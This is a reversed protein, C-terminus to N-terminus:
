NNSFYIKLDDIGSFEILHLGDFPKLDKCGVLYLELGHVKQLEHVVADPQKNNDLDQRCDTIAILRKMCMSDKFTPERLLVQSKDLFGNVDTLDTKLKETRKAQPLDFVEKQIRKLFREVLEINARKMSDIVALQEDRISPKENPDIAPATRFREIVPPRDSPNGIALVSITFDIGREIRDLIIARFYATDPKDYETTTGSIDIGWSQVERKFSINENPKNCGAVAFILLIAVFWKFHLYQNQTFNNEM